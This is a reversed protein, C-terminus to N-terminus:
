EFYPVNDLINIDNTYQIVFNTNLSYKSNEKEKIRKEIEEKDMIGAYNLVSLRKPQEIFVNKFFQLVEEYSEIENLTVLKKQENEFDYHESEIEDWIKDTREKLNNQNSEIEYKTAAKLDEFNNTCNTELASTVAKNIEEDVEDPYKATGQVTIYYYLINEKNSLGSKVVYGLQKKTRLEAFFLQGICKNFLNVYISTKIEKQGIQYYVNTAHNNENDFYNKFYYNIISGEKMNHIYLPNLIISPHDKKIFINGLSEAQEKSTDGHVLITYKMQKRFEKIFQDFEEKKMSSIIEGNLDTYVFINKSILKTHIKNNVIFPMNTKEKGILVILAEKAQQFLENSIETETLIQYITKSIKESLDSFSSITLLIRKNNFENIISNQSKMADSLLVNTKLNFFQNFLNLSIWHNIDGTLFFPSTIQIIVNTKPLTFSKDIKYLVLGNTTNMAILPSFNKKEPIFENEKNEGNLCSRKKDLYCPILLNKKKTLYQNKEKLKFLKEAENLNSNIQFDCITYDVNYYISRKQEKTQNNFLQSNSMDKETSLIILSKNFSIEDLFEKITDAKYESHIYSGSLIDEYDYVWMGMSLEVTYSSPDKKETFKFANDSNTKIDLFTNPNIKQSKILSIYDCVLQIVKDYQTTGENTLSIKIKYTAFNSYNDDIGASLSLILNQSKLVQILSQDEENLLLYTLYDEPKTKYKYLVQGVPISIILENVNSASKYWIIKSLKDDFVKEKMGQFKKEFLSKLSPNGDKKYSFYSNVMNEMEDITYNSFVSLKMNKGTYFYNFFSVLQNRLEDYGVGGLTQTTGTAFSSFPHNPNAQDKVLQDVIWLDNNINKEHESNVANIEKEIFAKDFLPKDFMAGFIKFSERFGGNDVQFFYTTKDFGTFANLVGSNQSVTNSFIESDPFTESGLFIMHECFHALGPALDFFAGVNVSLSASSKPTSKDSVLLVEIDNPLKFFKYSNNDSLPRKIDSSDILSNDRKHLLFYSILLIPILLSLLLIWRKKKKKETEEYYALGEIGVKSFEMSM